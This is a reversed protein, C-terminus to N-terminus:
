VIPGRVVRAPPGQAGGTRDRLLQGPRVAQLRGCWYLRRAAARDAPSQQRPGLPWDTKGDLRDIAALNADLRARYAGRYDKGLHFADELNYLDRIELDRNVQDYEKMSMIVNKIEVRGFREIRVSSARGGGDRWGRRAAADSSSCRAATSRSSSAWSTRMPCATRGRSRSPSGGTKLSELYAPLDIFFPDSRLGAYVRLARAGAREDHVRFRIAEGFSSTCQGEQVATGDASSRPEEFTCSFRAGVGRPRVRVGTPRGRGRTASASAASSRTRSSRMRGALPLVTMALVLHGPRGRARFLLSTASTGPRRASPTGSFHDSM